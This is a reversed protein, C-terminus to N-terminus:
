AMPAAPEAPEPLDEPYTIELESITRPFHRRNNTVFRDAGAAVATAFHVSDVTRLGYRVGMALALEATPRDVPLLEVRSLLSELASVEAHARARIPKTLLESVLLVSGVLAPPGDANTPEDPFLALVRRGLPHDLVAAYILVDADLADV